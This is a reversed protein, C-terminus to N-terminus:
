IRPWISPIYLVVTNQTVPVERVAEIDTSQFSATWCNLTCIVETEWSVFSNWTTWSNLSSLHLITITRLKGRNNETQLRWKLEKQHIQYVSGNENGHKTWPASHLRQTTTIKQMYSVCGFREVMIVSSDIYIGRVIEHKLNKSSKKKKKFLLLKIQITSDRWIKTIIM